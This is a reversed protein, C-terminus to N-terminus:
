MLPIARTVKRIFGNQIIIFTSQATFINIKDYHRKEKMQQALWEGCSELTPEEDSWSLYFSYSINDM